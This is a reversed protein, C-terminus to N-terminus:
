GNTNEPAEGPQRRPSAGKRKQYLVETAAIRDQAADLERDVAAAFAQVGPNGPGIRAASERVRERLNSMFAQLDLLSLSVTHEPGVGPTVNDHKM